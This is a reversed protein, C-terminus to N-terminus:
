ATRSRAASNVRNSQSMTVPPPGPKICAALSPTVRAVRPALLDIPDAHVQRKLLFHVREHGLRELV